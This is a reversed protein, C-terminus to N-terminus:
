NEMKKLWKQNYPPFGNQEIVFIMINSHLIVLFPVLQVDKDRAEHNERGSIWLVEM